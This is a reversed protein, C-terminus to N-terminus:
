AGDKWRRVAAFVRVPDAAAGKGAAAAIVAASRSRLFPNTALEEGMTSPITPRDSNILDIVREHRAALAANAPEVAAAFRLNSDTYEHGCYIKTADGVRALRELSAFMQEASGEFLRGCGGAFLTDGTFIADNAALHFCIAGRTHGPTHMIRARVEDGVTVEDGDSVFRTQGPIRGRDSDHGIVEAAPWDALLAQNGGTHDFHHHTNWIAVLEVDEDAIARAMAPADAPDVAAARKSAECIVLYGYNDSLCPVLVIRMVFGYLSDASQAVRM